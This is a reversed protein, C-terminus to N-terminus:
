LLAQAITVLQQHFFYDPHCDPAPDRDPDPDPDPDPDAHNHDPHRDPDKDLYSIHDPYHSFYSHLSPDSNRDPSPGPNPITHRGPYHVHDLHGSPQDTHHHNCASPIEVLIKDSDWHTLSLNLLM